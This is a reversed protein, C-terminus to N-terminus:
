FRAGTNDAWERGEGLIDGKRGMSEERVRRGKVTSEEWDRGM